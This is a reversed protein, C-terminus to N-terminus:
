AATIAHDNMVSPADFELLLKIGTAEYESPSAPQQGTRRRGKRVERLLEFTKALKGEGLRLLGEAFVDFPKRMTPILTVGDLRNNSRHSLRAIAPAERRFRAIAPQRDLAGGLIKLAFPRDLSVQRALYVIGMGGAGIRREIRFDGIQVGAELGGARSTDM